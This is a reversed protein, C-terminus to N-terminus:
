RTATERQELGCALPILEGKCGKRGGSALNFRIKPFCGGVEFDANRRLVM